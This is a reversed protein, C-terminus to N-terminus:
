GQGSDKKQVKIEKTEGGLIEFPIAMLHVRIKLLIPSTGPRYMGCNIISM